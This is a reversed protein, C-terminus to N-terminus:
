LVAHYKPVVDRRQVDDVQDAEPLGRGSVVQSHHSYQFGYELTSFAMSSLVSLWVRSGGSCYRRGRRQREAMRHGSPTSRGPSQLLEYYTRAAQLTKYYTRAAKSPGSSAPSGRGPSAWSRAACPASGSTAAPTAKTRFTTRRRTSASPSSLRDTCCGRSWSAWAPEREGCDCCPTGRRQM